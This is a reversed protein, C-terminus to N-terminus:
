DDRLKLYALIPEHDSLNIYKNEFKLFEFNEDALVYDIKLPPIGNDFGYTVGIGNGKELFGDQLNESITKYSYTYPTENFDGTVIVPYPSQEIHTKLILAQLARRRAAQQLKKLVGKGSELQQDTSTESGSILKYESKEFGLSELHINYVRVTDGHVNLDCFIAKYKKFKPQLLTGTHIIPYKSFIVLGFFRKLETNSKEFREFFYHPTQTAELTQSLNDYAPNNEIHYFEQLCVIDAQEEEFFSFLKDSVHEDPKWGYKNFLRINYSLLKIHNEEIDNPLSVQFLHIPSPWGMMIVIIGLWHLKTKIFALTIFFFYPYALGAIQSFAWTNPNLQGGVQATALGILSLIFSGRLLLRSFKRM